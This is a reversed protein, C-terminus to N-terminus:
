NGTVTAVDRAKAWVWPADQDRNENSICSTQNEHCLIMSRHLLQPPALTRTCVRAAPLINATPLPPPTIRATVLPLALPLRPQIPVHKFTQYQPTFICMLLPVKADKLIDQM